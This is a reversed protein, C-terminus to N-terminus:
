GGGIRADDHEQRRFAAILVGAFMLVSPVLLTLIALDLQHKAQPSQAAADAYCMACGQAAVRPAAALAAATVGIRSLWKRM